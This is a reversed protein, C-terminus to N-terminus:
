RMNRKRFYQRLTTGFFYRVVTFILVFFALLTGNVFDFSRIFVYQDLVFFILLYGFYFITGFSRLILPFHRMLLYSKYIEELVSYVLILGAVYIIDSYNAFNFIEIVFYAITFNVIYGFVFNIIRNHHFVGGFEIAILPRRPKKQKGKQHKQLEEIKKIVDRLEELEEENEPRKDEPELAM